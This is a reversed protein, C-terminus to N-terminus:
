SALFLFNRWTPHPRVHESSSRGEDTLLFFKYGFDALVAAIAHGTAPRLVECIIAPHDKELTRVMGRFVQDETNETDVKVLDVSGGLDNEEVFFDVTTVDVTTTALRRSDVISRMFEGSLSSSSPIGDAPHFFAAEGADSGLARPVISVNELGNLAVNRVLRERVRALPEFAYVQGAPNALGALLSFYGVHAGVDLTVRASGALELFPKATEPEHGAWGHWFLTTAIDDDGRSWMRVTQGSPLTAEVTGTRPLYRAVPVTDVVKRPLVARLAATVPRNVPPWTVAAKM